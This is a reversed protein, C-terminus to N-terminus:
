DTGSQTRIYTDTSDPVYTESIKTEYYREGSINKLVLNNKYRNYAM